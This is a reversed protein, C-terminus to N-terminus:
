ETGRSGSPGSARRQYNMGDGAKQFKSRRHSPGRAGGGELDAMARWSIRTLLNSYAPCNTLDQVPLDQSAAQLVALAWAEM